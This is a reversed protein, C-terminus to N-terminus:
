DSAAPSRGARALMTDYVAMYRDVMATLSFEAEVRRRAALRQALRREPDRFLGQMAQAMAAPDEPPVLEGTENAVVLEANGGVDTAIVPLGSAMAELLTNSIGEAKSPLVFVDMGQLLRPVDDRAGALWVQAQVGASVIAAEVEGRQPGDGIIVLRAKARADTDDALWLGFARVLTVQDKVAQLRGVTGFVVSAETEFGVPAVNRRSVAPLFRTADVGNCIRTLRADGVGIAQTLYSSLQVSLAIYHTVFPAYLRRLFRYKKSVGGPDGTDWGHEGHVRVPVRAAWAPVVMELAALNRTHVVTPRLNRLLQFVRWYHRAGHGPPLKLSIFHVDDRTVRSCFAPDCETLAIVVHRYRSAPMRNILNVVGNELGGIRFSHVIHAVLPVDVASM